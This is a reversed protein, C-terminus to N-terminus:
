PRIGWLRIEGDYSASALLNGVPSFALNQVAHQHGELSKLLVGDGV